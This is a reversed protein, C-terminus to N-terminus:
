LLVWCVAMASMSSLFVRAFPARREEAGSTKTSSSAMGSASSSPSVTQVGAEVTATATKSLSFVSPKSAYTQALPCQGEDCLSALGTSPVFTSVFSSSNALGSGNGAVAEVISWAHYKPATYITEFGKKPVEDLLQLKSVDATAGGYIRWSRVETAGNWSMYYVTPASNNQAYVFADPSGNPLIATFNFKYSRYSETGFNSFTAFLVPDGNETYESVWINSGWGMFRNGSSLLQLNGQSPSSLPKGQFDPPIYTSLLSATMKPYDLAIIKGTSYASSNKGGDSANDFISLVTTTANESVFRADHQFSFNFNNLKFDSLMGGLRWLITGNAGSVKYVTSTHRSSILYDGEANKDLANM